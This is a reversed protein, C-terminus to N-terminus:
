ADDFRLTCVCALPVTGEDPTNHVTEEKSDWRDTGTIKFSSSPTLILLFKQEWKM